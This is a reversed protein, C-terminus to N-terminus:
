AGQFRPRWDLGLLTCAWSELVHLWEEATGFGVQVIKLGDGLVLLPGPDRHETLPPPDGLLVGDWTTSEDERM